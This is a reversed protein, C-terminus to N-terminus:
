LATSSRIIKLVAPRESCCSLWTNSFTHAPGDPHYIPNLSMFSVNTVNNFLLLIAVGYQPLPAVMKEPSNCTGSLCLSIPISKLCLFSYINHMM